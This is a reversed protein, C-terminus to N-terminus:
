LLRENIEVDLSLKEDYNDGLYGSLAGDLIEFIFEMDEFSIEYGMKEELSKKLLEKREQNKRQKFHINALDIHSMIPFVKGSDKCLKRRWELHDIYTKNM